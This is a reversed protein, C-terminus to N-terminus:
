LRAPLRGPRRHAQARAQARARAPATRRRARLSLRSPGGRRRRWRGARSGDSPRPGCRSGGRDGGRAGAGGAGAGALAVTALMAGALVALVRQKRIPSRRRSAPANSPAGMPRAAAAPAPQPAVDGRLYRIVSLVFLCFLIIASGVCWECIMKLSFIERYTLYMSFGFGILAVGLIAVRTTESVPALLLAFIVVYGILGLVAVPVGALKSYVSMQVKLCSSTGHSTAVCVPNIGAYHIVTLYGAVGIGIVALVIMAIHLRRETTDARAFRRSRPATVAGGAASAALKGYSAM